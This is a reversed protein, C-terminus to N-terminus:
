VLVQMPNNLSQLFRIIPTQLVQPHLPHTPTISIKHLHSLLLTCNRSYLPNPLPQTITLNLARLRRNHNLLPTSLPSLLHPSPTTAGNSMLQCYRKSQAIDTRNKTQTRPSLFFFCVYGQDYPGERRPGRPTGKAVAYNQMYSKFDTRNDINEFIAKLGSGLRRTLQKWLM